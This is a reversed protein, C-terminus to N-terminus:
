DSNSSKYDGLLYVILSQESLVHSFRFQNIVKKIALLTPQYTYHCTGLYNDYALINWRSFDGFCM